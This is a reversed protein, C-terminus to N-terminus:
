ADGDLARAANVAVAVIVYVVSAVLAIGHVYLQWIWRGHLGIEVHILASTLFMSGSIMVAFCPWFYNIRKM